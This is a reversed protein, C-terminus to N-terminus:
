IVSCTLLISCSSVMSSVTQIPYVCNLFDMQYTATNDKTISNINLRHKTHILTHVKKNLLCSIKMKTLTYVVDDQKWFSNARILEYNLLCQFLNM